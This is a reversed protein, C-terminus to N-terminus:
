EKRWNYVYFDSKPGTNFILDLITVNHFFGDFRQKYEPYNLYEKWFINIGNSDFLNKDLYNKATPGSIYNKCNFHKIIDILRQNKDSSTKIDRSDILLTKIKLFECILSISRQNLESLSNYKNTKYIKDILFKFDKYYKCGAYSMQISKQHHEVWNNNIPKVEFIKRNINNGVPITLWKLGHNTKILNRNRWDRKTYQVEDLFVFIDCDNIFDFYGKWPIYNSQSIGIVTM